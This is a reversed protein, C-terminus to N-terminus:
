GHYVRSRRLAYALTPFLILGESAKTSQNQAHSEGQLIFQYQHHNERWDGDCPPANYYEVDIACITM